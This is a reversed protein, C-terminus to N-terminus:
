NEYSERAEEDEHLRHEPSEQEECHDEPLEAQIGSKSHFPAIGHFM